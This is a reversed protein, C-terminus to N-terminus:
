EGHAEQSNTAPPGLLDECALGNLRRVQDNAQLADRAVAEARRRAEQARRQEQESALVSPHPDTKRFLDFIGMVVM